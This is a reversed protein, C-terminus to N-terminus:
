SSAARERLAKRLNDASQNAAIPPDASQAADQLEGYDMESYQDVNEPADEDEDEDGTEGAGPGEIESHDAPEGTAAGTVRSGPYPVAGRRREKLDGKSEVLSGDATLVDLRGEVLHDTDVEDGFKYSKRYTVAGRDNREVVRMRERNLYYTM